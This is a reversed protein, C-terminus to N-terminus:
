FRDRETFTCYANGSYETLNGISGKLIIISFSTNETLILPFRMSNEPKVSSYLQPGHKKASLDTLVDGNIAKLFIHIEEGSTAGTSDTTINTIYDTIFQNIVWYKGEPVKFTSRNNNMTLMRADGTSTQRQIKALEQDKEQAIARLETKESELKTKDERLFRITRDRNEIINEQNALVKNLSDIMANKRDLDDQLEKKTQSFSIGSIFVLGLLLIINLKYKIM